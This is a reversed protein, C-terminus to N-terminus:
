HQSTDIIYSDRGESLHTTMEVPVQLYQSRRPICVKGIPDNATVTDKDFVKIQLLDEQIQEDDM